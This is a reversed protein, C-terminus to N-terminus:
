LVTNYSRAHAVDQVGRQLFPYYPNTIDPIITAFTLSRRTRMTQATRDPIYGLTKAAELVIQRTVEPISMTQIDNLVYSVTARSVGAHRAVDVQTPRKRNPPEQQVM